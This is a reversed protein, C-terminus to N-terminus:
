YVSVWDVEGSGDSMQGLLDKTWKKLFNKDRTGHARERFHTRLLEFAEELPSASIYFSPLPHVRPDWQMEYYIRSQTM